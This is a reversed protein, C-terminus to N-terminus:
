VSPLIVVASASRDNQQGGWSICRAPRDRWEIEWIVARLGRVVPFEADLIKRHAPVFGKIRLLVDGPRHM